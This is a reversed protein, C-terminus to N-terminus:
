NDLVNTGYKILRRHPDYKLLGQYRNLLPALQKLSLSIATTECINEQFKTLFEEVNMTGIPLCKAVRGHNSKSGLLDLATKVGRQLSPDKNRDGLLAQGVLQELTTAGPLVVDDEEPWKPTLAVIEAVLKRLRPKVARTADALYVNGVALGSPNETELYKQQAASEFEISEHHGGEAIHQQFTVSEIEGDEETTLGSYMQMIATAPDLDPYLRKAAALVEKTTAVNGAIPGLATIAPQAEAMREEFYLYLAGVNGAPFVEERDPMIVTFSGHRTRVAGGILGMYANTSLM